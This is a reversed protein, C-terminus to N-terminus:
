ERRLNELRAQLNADADALATQEKGTVPSVTSAAPPLKNLEENFQIGLEDLVQSVIADTEEEDGEDAMADDIADNMMEEKMEMLDSQREFDSMIRQIQPLKLQQNMSMMAKTVGKMAQAMADQSKLTQIKLSVAQINARMMIFKKVYRRTRVLDKAMVKVADMQGAKAMKKIDIIIKKEQNELHMKERDLDRMARNLARQNQRLMEQPTKRRGFLFDLAM